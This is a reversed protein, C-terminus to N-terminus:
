AVPRKKIQFKEKAKEAEEKIIDYLNPVKSTLYTVIEDDKLDELSVIDQESLFNLLRNTVQGEIVVALAENEFAKDTDGQKLISNIIRKRLM